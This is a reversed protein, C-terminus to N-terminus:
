EKEDIVETFQRKTDELKEKTSKEQNIKNISEKMSTITNKIENYKEIEKNILRIGENMSEEKEKDISSDIKELNQKSNNKNEKEIEKLFEPSLVQNLFNKNKYLTLVKFIDNIKEVNLHEKIYDQVVQASEQNYKKSFYMFSSNYKFMIPEEEYDSLDEKFLSKLFQPDKAINEPILNYNEPFYKRNYHQRGDIEDVDVDLETVINVCFDVDNLFKSFYQINDTDRRVMEAAFIKNNMVLPFLEQYEKNLKVLNFAEYKILYYPMNEFIKKKKLWKKAKDVDNAFWDKKKELIEDFKEVKM